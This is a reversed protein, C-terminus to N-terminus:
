SCKCVGKHINVMKQFTICHVYMIIFCFKCIEGFICSPLHILELHWLMVTSVKKVLSFQTM